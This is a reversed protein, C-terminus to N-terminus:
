APRSGECGYGYWQVNFVAHYPHNFNVWIVQVWSSPCGMLFMQFSAPRPCHLHHELQVLCYAEWYEQFYKHRNIFNCRDPFGLPQLFSAQFVEWFAVLALSSTLNDETQALEGWPPTVTELSLPLTAITSCIRHHHNINLLIDVKEGQFLVLVLDETGPHCNWLLLVRVGLVRHDRYWAERIGIEQDRWPLTVVTGSSPSIAELLTM